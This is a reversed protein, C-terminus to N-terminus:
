IFPNWLDSLAVRGNCPYKILGLSSLKSVLNNFHGTGATMGCLNALEERSLEEESEIAQMLKILTGQKLVSCVMSLFEERDSAGDVEGVENNGQATLELMKDAPYDVLGSTRLGSIVNNIHGTNPKAGAVFAVQKCCPAEVGTANWWAIAKLIRDALSGQKLTQNNNAPLPKISQITASPKSNMAVSVGAPKAVSPIVVKSAKKNSVKKLASLLDKSCKMRETDSQIQQALIEILPTLPAVAESVKESVIQNVEKATAGQVQQVVQAKGPSDIKRQLKRIQKDKEAIVKNAQEIDYIEGEKEALEQLESFVSQIAASAKPPAIKGRKGPEPHETKVKDTRFRAVATDDLAPGFALFDGAPLECLRRRISKEFGLVDGARKQDADLTTRGIFVNNCEAAADKHLKSLRQTSLVGCIGRKQGRSM